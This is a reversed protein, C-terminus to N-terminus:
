ANRADTRAQGSVADGLHVAGTQTISGAGTLALGPSVGIDGNITTAGTNTVTSSGLVAFDVASGLVSTAAAPAALGSLALAAFLGALTARRETAILGLIMQSVGEFAM